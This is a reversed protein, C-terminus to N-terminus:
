KRCIKYKLIVAASHENIKKESIRLNIKDAVINTPFILNTTINIGFGNTVRSRRNKRKSSQM